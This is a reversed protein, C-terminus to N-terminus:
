FTAGCSDKTAKLGQNCKRELIDDGRYGAGLMGGSDAGGM